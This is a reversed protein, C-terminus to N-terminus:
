RVRAIASYRGRGRAAVHEAEHVADRAKGHRLALDAEGGALRRGGLAIRRGDEGLQRLEQLAGAGAGALAADGAEEGHQDLAVIVVLRDGVRHAADEVAMDHEVARDGLAAAIRRDVHQARDRARM